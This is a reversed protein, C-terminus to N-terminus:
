LLKVIDNITVFIMLAILLSFGIKIGYEQYKEAMPKGRIAEVIYYMLHGGDLAPIPFLNFFGLAFSIKAIFNMIFALAILWGTTEAADFSKKMLDGSLKAIKVPGGLTDTGRRGTILGGIVSITGAGMKYTESFSAYISDPFPIKEFRVKGMNSFGLRGIEVMEGDVGKVEATGPTIAIDFQEVGRIITATMKVGASGMVVDQIDEFTNIPIGDISVFEDGSVIGAKEAASGEIVQGVVPLTKDIGVWTYFCSLTIITFVINMLPGAIVIATKIPLPKYHFTKAKDEESWNEINEDKSSAPDVDGFMKVYGGFPLCCVKWRTGSKDNWGFIEKGFGIAFTEIKVGGWKAVIYHGFEHIFVLPTIVILFSLITILINM